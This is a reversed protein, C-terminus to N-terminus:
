PVRFVVECNRSVPDVFDIRARDQGPGCNVTADRVNDVANLRDNGRRGFLEDGRSAGGIVRDAGSGGSVTDRGSDGDVRDDGAAGSLDDNDAGGFVEDDGDGGSADDNGPGGSVTDDGGDGRLDDRGPNGGVRDQGSDGDVRDNGEGGAVRDNGQEGFVRDGQGSGTARDNGTGMLLCDRNAQGDATDNGGFALILDKAPTGDLVNNGGNGVITNNTAIPDCQPYYGTPTVRFADFVSEINRLRAICTKLAQTDGVEVVFRNKVMPHVVTWRAELINIGTEAFTRSLDELMRTRDWGDIRLEVRFPASTDGEWAVPTFREPNRKLAEANPCHDRELLETAASAPEV